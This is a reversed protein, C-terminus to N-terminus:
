PQQRLPNKRRGNLVAVFVIQLLTLIFFLNKCVILAHCESGYSLVVSVMRLYAKFPVLNASSLGM